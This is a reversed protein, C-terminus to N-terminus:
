RIQITASLNPWWAFMYIHYMCAPVLGPDDVSVVIGANHSMHYPVIQAVLELLDDVPKEAERRAAYEQGIEGAINRVYEHGWSGVEGQTAVFCLSYRKSPLVAFFVSHWSKGLM